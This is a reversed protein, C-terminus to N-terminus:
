DLSPRMLAVVRCWVRPFYLFSKTYYFFLRLLFFIFVVIMVVHVFYYSLLSHFSYKVFIIKTKGIEDEINFLVSIDRWKLDNKQLCVFFFSCFFNKVKGANFIGFLGARKKLKM